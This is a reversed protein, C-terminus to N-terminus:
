KLKTMQIKWGKNITESKLLKAQSTVLEETTKKLQAKLSKVYNSQQPLAPSTQTGQM